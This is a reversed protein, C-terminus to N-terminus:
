ATRKRQRRAMQTGSRDATNDNDTLIDAAQALRDLAAAIAKDRDKMVHQYRLAAAPSSHGIREMLERTTAGTAAAFTAATHRLDHFRLGPVGAAKTAPLWVRRRFNSRRLYGDGDAAPFVLGDTGAGPHRDLHDALAVVAVAPLTVTRTGAESKPPGVVFAGNVETIQEAVRVTGHLLDVHRVRLGVLEGWRLGGYAAVLIMARYRAPVADALARVQQPTAAQMEPAHEVGAGKIVCPSAPLYGAEVAAGLIRGLLRYAKAITTASVQDADHLEALWTRVAMVDIRALPLEGFTPLLFRGLLYGYLNRTTPRLNTTTQLWREAWGRFTTRGLRPNSWAGRTLDAEVTALYRNADGKTAFTTPGTHPRGQLDYYRAQWRGSPLRRVSGFARRPNRGAM